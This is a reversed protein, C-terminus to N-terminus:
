VEEIYCVFPGRVSFWFQVRFALDDKWLNNGVRSQV